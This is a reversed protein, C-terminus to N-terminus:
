PFEESIADSELEFTCGLGSMKFQILSLNILTGVMKQSRNKTVYIDKTM